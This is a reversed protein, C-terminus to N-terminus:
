DNKQDVRKQHAASIAIAREAIRKENYIQNMSTNASWGMAYKRADELLRYDIKLEAGKKDFTENWKHRLLHPHVHLKLSESLRKFIMNISKLSLPMGLTGRSGKESVFIFDHQETGPIESRVHNIYYKIQGMLYPSIIAIHSKTKQKPKELRHDDYDIDSRYVKIQDFSGYFQLDSIKLKALAGRRIGSQALVSVILYNRIKSGKFPNNESSPLIMELLRVFDQDSIVSDTINAVRQPVNSSLSEEDLRIQSYLKEYRESVILSVSFSDHFEQFLFELYNRLRRLRGQQTENSVRVLQRANASLANRM